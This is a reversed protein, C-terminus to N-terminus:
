EREIEIWRGPVWRGKRNYHAPNWVKIYVPPVWIKRSRITKRQLATLINVIWQVVWGRLEIM